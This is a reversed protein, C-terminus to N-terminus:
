PGEGPAARELEALRDDDIYPTIGKAFLDGTFLIGEQPCLILIDNNSHSLGYYILRLTVDGLDLTLRDNFTITPVTLKFDGELDDCFMEYSKITLALAGAAESGAEMGALRDKLRQVAVRYRPVQDISAQLNDRMQGPCNEQGIFLADAFAQNGHTHDGHDHTNIVYAFDDRGFHGVIKERMLAAMSPSAGTDVVVLGKQTAMATINNDAGPATLIIVRDGVKNVTIEIKVDEQAASALALLGLILAFVIIAHTKM